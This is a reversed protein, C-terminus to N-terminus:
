HCPNPCPLVNSTDVLCPLQIIHGAKHRM